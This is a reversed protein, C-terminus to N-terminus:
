QKQFIAIVQSNNDNKMIFIFSTAMVTLLIVSQMIGHKAYFKHEVSHCM